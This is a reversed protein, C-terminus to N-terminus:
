MWEQIPAPLDRRRLRSRRRIWGDALGVAEDLARRAPPSLPAGLEFSRGPIALLWAPPAARGTVQEFVALLRSPPLAHTSWERGSEARLPQLAPRGGEGPRPRAADVFLVARRGILDVSHEVQLQFDTLLEVLRGRHRAAGVALRDVLWPGLADDGRSPNGVALVLLPAVFGDVAQQLLRAAHRDGAEHGGEIWM